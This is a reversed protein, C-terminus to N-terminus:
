KCEIAMEWDVSSTEQPQMVINYGNPCLSGAKDWMSASTMADIHHVPRGNPGTQSTSTMACAALAAGIMGLAIRHM